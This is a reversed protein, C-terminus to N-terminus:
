QNKKHSDYLDYLQAFLVIGGSAVACITIIKNLVTFNDFDWGWIFFPLLALIISGIIFSVPHFVIGRIKNLINDSDM